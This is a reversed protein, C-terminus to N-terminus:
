RSLVPNGSLRAVTDEGKAAVVLCYHHMILEWEEIEDLIEIKSARRVEAPDLLEQFVQLMDIANASDWGSKKFREEQSLLSPYPELGPLLCGMRQLLAGSDAPEMYVLVCEALFITPAALDVGAIILADELATIDRLDAAVLKYLDNALASLIPTKAVLGGKWRSVAPFDVEFYGGSAATGRDMLRFFLSDKGAGLSIVQPKRALHEEISSQSEKCDTKHSPHEDGDGRVHHPVSSPHSPSTGIFELVLKEMCSVRAFNGRNIIPPLRRVPPTTAEATGPVPAGAAGVLVELFRDEFYGLSAASLKGAAADSATAQVSEDSGVQVRRM